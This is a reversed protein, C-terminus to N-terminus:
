LDDELSVRNGLHSLREEFFAVLLKLDLHHLDVLLFLPPDQAVVILWLKHKDVPFADFYAPM